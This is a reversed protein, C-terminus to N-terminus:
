DAGTPGLSVDEPPDAVAPALLPTVYDEDHHVSKILNYFLREQDRYGIDGALPKMLDRERDEIQRLMGRFGNDYVGHSDLLTISWAISVMVVLGAVKTRQLDLPWRQLVLSAGEFALAGFLVPAFVTTLRPTLQSWTFWATTEDMGRMVVRSAVFSAVLLVVLAAAEVVPRSLLRRVWLAVSGATVPLRPSGALRHVVTAGSAIVLAAATTAFTSRSSLYKNLVDAFVISEVVTPLVVAVVAVAWTRRDAGVFRGSLGDWAMFVGSAVAGYKTHFLTAVALLAYALVLRRQWRCVAAALILMQAFNRSTAGYVQYPEAPSLITRMMDNLFRELPMDSAIRGFADYQLLNEVAYSALIALALTVFFQQGGGRLATVLLAAVIAFLLWETVAITSVLYHTYDVAGARYAPEIAAESLATTASLALYNLQMSGRTEYLAIMREEVAPTGEQAQREAILDVSRQFLDRAVDSTLSIGGFYYSAYDDDFTLYTKVNHTFCLAYLGVLLTALVVFPRRALPADRSPVSM